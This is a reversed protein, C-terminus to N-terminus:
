DLIAKEHEEQAQKQHIRIANEKKSIRKSSAELDDIDLNNKKENESRGYVSLVYFGRMMNRFCVISYHVTILVLIFTIVLFFTLFRRTFEYPDSGNQKPLNITTFRFAWYVLSISYMNIASLLLYKKEMIVSIWAILLMLTGFFFVLAIEVISSYYGIQKSPILQIAYSGIFFVDMKILTQLITLSMFRERVQPDSSYIKYNEWGFEKTLLYSMVALYISFASILGIITHELPRMLAEYHVKPADRDDKPFIPNIPTYTANQTGQDELIKHQYLQIGVYALTLLNFVVLAVIQVSNRHWLADVVLLVQFFLSLIFISHYILDAESIGDGVSDLQYQSVFNVHFYIVFAELVTIIIAQFIFSILSIKGLVSIKGM